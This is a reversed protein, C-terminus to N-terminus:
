FLLVSWKGGQPFSPRKMMIVQFCDPVLRRRCLRLLFLYQQALLLVGSHDLYSVVALSPKTKRPIRINRREKCEPISALWDVLNFLAAVVVVLSRVYLMIHPCKIACKCSEASGFSWTQLGCGSVPIPLPFLRSCKVPSERLFCTFMHRQAFICRRLKWNPVAFYVNVGQKEKTPRTVPVGQQRKQAKTRFCAYIKKEQKFQCRSPSRSPASKVSNTRQVWSSWISVDRGTQSASNRALHSSCDTLLWVWMWWPCWPTPSISIHIVRWECSMKDGPEFDPRAWVNKVARDSNDSSTSPCLIGRRVLTPVIKRKSEGGEELFLSDLNHQNIM